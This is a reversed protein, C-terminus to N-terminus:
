LASCNKKGAGKKLDASDKASYATLLTVQIKDTM